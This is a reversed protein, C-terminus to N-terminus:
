KNGLASMISSIQDKLLQIESKLSDNESKLERFAEVAYAFFDNGVGFSKVKDAIFAAQQENPSVDIVWEPFIKEVEQAIVGVDHRGDVRWDFEVGRIKLLKDLSGTLPVINEKLRQDSSTSWSGGGTKGATGIVELTFAPATTLIGVRSASNDVRMVEVFGASSGPSGTYGFCVDDASATTAVAVRQNSFAWIGGRSNGSYHCIVGADTGFAEIFESPSVTGVGLKGSSNVTVRDNAGNTRLRIETAGQLYLPKSNEAVLEVSSANSYFYGQRVNTDYLSIYPNGTAEFRAVEDTAGSYVHLRTAVTATGIGVNGSSDVRARESTTPTAGTSIIFADSSPHKGAHFTTGSGNRYTWMPFAGGFGGVINMFSGVDVHLRGEPSTFGIGVNNSTDISLVPFAGARQLYFKNSAADAVFDYHANTGDDIARLSLIAPRTAGKVAVTLTRLSDTPDSNAIFDAGPATTVTMGLARTVGDGSARDFLTAGGHVHLLSGPTATGIGVNGAATIRIGKTGTAWPALVLAGTDVSGGSFIIASDNAQTIDNYSGLSTTGVLTRLWRTGDSQYIGQLSGTAYIELKGNTGPDTGIGVRGDNTFAGPNANLAIDARREGKNTIIVVNNSTSTSASDRIIFKSSEANGLIWKTAGSQLFSAFAFRPSGGDIALIASDDANKLLLHNSNSLSTHIELKYGVMGSNTTTGIGVRSNTTDYILEAAGAAVGSNNFIVQRNSGAVPGTAGAPGTAGTAGLGGTSGAPGTAGTAGTGGASGTPGTAGTAGIGGASGAPGTAGTAGTGGTNGAPGTAGTAGTGGVNGTPGTAGTAGTNGTNGQPGTAGTSGIAGASGTPGTAGTAGIGGTNGQPGTAGTAGAPGTNGTPGTAGTAGTNGTTGAPGTAGTAGTNGTLGTPGTAGTSGVAGASGTPGTAGTAGTNGTNGQPGTAGTAGTGGTNGAPGTAGTAGTGGTNGTPGTAGTAGASGTNGQPGTAGTAGTTGVNGQPGTAGTSGIAGASGTPGTAGTAGTGGTNGQPGTAGTAGTNGTLGIPGTAGTAGTGGTNGQPGTAGTAGANGTNGQPGTAGTAGTNGTLGTPGTAGTAGTGGTNGQPGTAGTAGTNGTLGTPGTAGTAGTNGQPGTAGTGGTNGTPGTAGTAGTNGTLGAPGTAGTNGTLGTPGTAGTAGTNGANGQPGTAGTAGIGGTNGQPGTAGTSGTNGTLGTPGTAGTAGTPGTNGAPGTAGTAGTLGTPGTAGTAGTPGSAGTLVAATITVAGNSGTVLTINNGAILYPSTGDSLRTLSGSFATSVVNAWRKTTTGVAHTADAAPNLTGSLVTNGNVVFRSDMANTGIGVNGSPDVRIRETQTGGGTHTGYTLTSNNFLFQGVSNGDHWLELQPNSAAIVRFGTGVAGTYSNLLANAAVTGIRATSTYTTGRVDLLYAPSSTGIGVNGTTDITLRTANVTRIAFPHSTATGILGGGSFAYNMLEVGNASDRVALNTTGANSVYLATNGITPTSSGAGVHLLARPTITGIGVNGAGTIRMRETTNYGGSYLSGFVMDVTTGNYRTDIQGTINSGDRWTLAKYTGDSPYDTKFSLIEVNGTGSKYVTLPAHLTSTGIGVNGGGENLLLSTYSAGTYAGIRGRSNAQDYGGFLYGSGGGMIWFQENGSGNIHFRVSPSSTGVGVRGTSNEWWLNNSGSLLGGVGAVVVQGATLNSSTLSGIINGAYVNRWVNGSAGLDFTNNSGPTIGTGAVVSAIVGGVLTNSRFVHQDAWHSNVTYASGVQFRAYNTSDNVDLLSGPNSSGIGVRSGTVVLANSAFRGAVVRDDSFVELIPLGSVDSAAFLSGSLSDTISLLSGSVGTFQVSGSTLVELRITNAMSGSFQINPNGSGLRQPDILINRPM